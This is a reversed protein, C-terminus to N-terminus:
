DNVCIIFAKSSHVVVHFQGDAHFEVLTKVINMPLNCQLKATFVDVAHPFNAACTSSFM